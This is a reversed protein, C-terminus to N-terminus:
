SVQAENNKCVGVGYECQLKDFLKHADAYVGKKKFFIIFNFSHINKFAINVLRREAPAAASEPSAFQMAVISNECLSKM